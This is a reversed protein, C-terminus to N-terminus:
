IPLGPIIRGKVKKTYELYESGLERELSEEELIIHFLLGIWWFPVLIIGIISEFMIAWGFCWLIEGLYIPNRVIAYFGTKKLKVSKDPSTFPSIDFAPLCFILGVIFFASGVIWHWIGIDFRPQECIPFVLIFRGLDFIIVIFAGLIPNQGVKKSGVVGGAMVLGFMSLFAWFLPDTLFSM